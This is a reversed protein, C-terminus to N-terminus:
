GPAALRLPRRDDRVPPRTDRRGAGLDGRGPDPHPSRAAAGARDRVVATRLAVAGRGPSRSRTAARDARGDARARPGSTRRRFGPAGSTNAGLWVNDLVSCAEAILVEQFITFIGNRQAAHPSQLPAIPEGGLEITGSDATHVGSLIKVLTSKGCGNEGVLAHVEGARLEMSCDRLAQTPGFAKAVGPVRLLVDSAHAVAPGLAAGHPPSDADGRERGARSGSRSWKGETGMRLGHNARCSDSRWMM